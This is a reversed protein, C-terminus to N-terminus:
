SSTFSLFDDLKMVNCTCKIWNDGLKWHYFLFFSVYLRWYYFSKCVFATTWTPLFLLQKTRTSDQLSKQESIKKTFTHSQKQLNQLMQLTFTMYPNPTYSLPLPNARWSCPVLNLTWDRLNRHLLCQVDVHIM